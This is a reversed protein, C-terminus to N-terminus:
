LDSLENSQKETLLSEFLDIYTHANSQRCFLDHVRKICHTFFDHTERRYLILDIARRLEILNGKPVSIGTNFDISEKLATCDYVVAPTGCAMAEITTLGFSEEYSLNLYVDAHSYYEILESGEIYNILVLNDSLEMDIKPLPGILILVEDPKLLKSFSILDFFGKKLFWHSSVSLFLRKDKYHPYKDYFGNYDVKPKFVNLDIGSYIQLHNFKSLISYSLLSDMWKSVSVITLRDIKQYLEKKKLFHFRSRDIYTKPYEGIQPCSYCENKWKNCNIHDFHPCHGTFSWCDHITWVLPIKSIALFNILVEYNLFYGHLNHLHILDPNQDKINVILKKTAITSLLGNMGFLRAGVVHKNRDFRNGIRYVNSSSEKYSRGYAIISEWGACLAAAGISEAIKGVSGHNVSDVIQYLKKKGM